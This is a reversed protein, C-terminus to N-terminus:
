VRVSGNLGAGNGNPHPPRPSPPAYPTPRRRRGPDGLAGRRQVGPPLLRGGGATGAHRRPRLSGHHRAGALAALTLYLVGPRDAARVELVTAQRSAEPGSSSARRSRRRPRAPSGRPPTSAAREVVADFRERLVAPDVPEDAVDWVSVAYEGEAWARAARVPARQLAFVRRSTPWCGSGTTPSRPSGPATTTPSSAHPRDRRRGAAAGGVGTPEAPVGPAAPRDSLTALVRRALDHSWGPAGPRGPRPRPPAPM